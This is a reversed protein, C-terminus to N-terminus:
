VAPGVAVHWILYFVLRSLLLAIWGFRRWLMAEVLNFAFISAFLVWVLLRDGALGAQSLPEILSTLVALAWFVIAEGRRRLALHAILFYLSGIPILRYLCEVAIAGATYVFVSAPFDIHISDIGLRRAILDSFGTAVDLGVVVLGLITGSTVASVLASRRKGTALPDPTMESRISAYVGVAGLLLIPALVSLRLAAAQSPHAFEPPYAAIWAAILVGVLGPGTLFAVSNRVAQGRPGQDFAQIQNIEAMGM